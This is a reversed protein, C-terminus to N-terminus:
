IDPFADSLPPLPRLRFAIVDLQLFQEGLTINADIPFYALLRYDHLIPDFVMIELDTHTGYEVHTSQTGKKLVHDLCDTLDISRELSDYAVREFIECHFGTFPNHFLLEKYLTISPFLEEELQLYRPEPFM